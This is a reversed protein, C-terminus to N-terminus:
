RPLATTRVRRSRRVAGTSTSSSSSRTGEWYDPHRIGPRALLPRSPNGLTHGPAIPRERVVYDVFNGITEVARGSTEPTVRYIELEPRGFKIIGHTRLWLGDHLPDAYLSVHERAEFQPDPDPVEWGGPAFFRRAFFDNTCGNALAAVRDALAYGYRAAAVGDTGPDLMHIMVAIRARDFREAVAEDVRGSPWAWATRLYEPRGASLPFDSVTAAFMAGGPSIVGLADGEIMPRDDPEGKRPGVYSISGPVTGAASGSVWDAPAPLPRTCGIIMLLGPEPPSWSM